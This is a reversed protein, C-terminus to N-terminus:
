KIYVIEHIYFISTVIFFFYVITVIVAMNDGDCERCFWNFLNAFIINVIFILVIVAFVSIELM